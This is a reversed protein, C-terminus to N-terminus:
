DCLHGSRGFDRDRQRILRKIAREEAERWDSLEWLTYKDPNKPGEGDHHGFGGEFPLMIVNTHDLCPKDSIVSNGIMVSYRANIGRDKILEAIVEVKNDTSIVTVDDFYQSLGAQELKYMQAQLNGITLAIIEFREHARELVHRVNQFVEPERFFVRQGIDRCMEVIDPDVKVKSKKALQEYSEVMADELRHREFATTKYEDSRVKALDIKKVLDLAENSDYGLLSMLKAFRDKAGVYYPECVVLTGDIDVFIAFKEKAQGNADKDCSVSCNRNPQYWNKDM